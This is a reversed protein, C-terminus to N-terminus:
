TKRRDAFLRHQSIVIVYIAVGALTWLDPFPLACPQRAYGLLAVLLATLVMWRSHRAAAVAVMLLVPLLALWQYPNVEGPLLAGLALGLGLSYDPDWRSRRAAWVAAIVIAILSLDSGIQAALPMSWPLRQLEIGGRVPLAVAQGGLGRGWLTRVSDISCDNLHSGLSPLLVRGVYFLGLRPGILALGLGSWLIMSLASSLVLWVRRPGGLPAMLLPYFKIAGAAGIALGALRPRREVVVLSVVALLILFGGVQGADLEAFLPPFYAALLWYLARTRGGLRLHRDLMWLAVLLCVADALTLFVVGLHIPLLAFPAALLAAFPPYLWGQGPLPNFGTRALEAAARSYLQGPDFILARGAALANRADPRDPALLSLILVRFGFVAALAWLLQPRGLM